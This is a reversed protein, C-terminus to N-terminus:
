SPCAVGPPCCVSGCGEVDVLPDASGCINGSECAPSDGCMCTGAVCREGQGCCGDGCSPGLTCATGHVPACAVPRAEPCLVGACGWYGPTTQDTFCYCGNCEDGAPFNDGPKFVRGDDLECAQPKVPEDGGCGVLLCAALM